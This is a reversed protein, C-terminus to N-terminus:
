NLIYLRKKKTEFYLYKVIIVSLASVIVAVYVDIFSDEITHTYEVLLQLIIQIIFFVITCISVCIMKTNFPFIESLLILPIPGIGINVATHFLFLIPLYLYYLNTKSVTLILFLVLCYAMGGFSIMLCLKRGFHDVLFLVFFTTTLQAGSIILTKATLDLNINYYASTIYNFFTFSNIGSLSRLIYLLVMLLMPKLWRYKLFISHKAERDVHDVNENIDDQVETLELHQNLPISGPDVFCPKRGNVQKGNKFCYYPTETIVTLSLIASLFGLFSSLYNTFSFEINEGIFNLIGSFLLFRGLAHAPWLVAILRGRSCDTAVEGIYVPLVSFIGGISLGTLFNAICGVVYESTIQFIISSIVLPLCIATITYRRGIIEALISYILSGIISGVKSSLVFIIVLSDNVKEAYLLRFVHLGYSSESLGVFLMLLCRIIIGLAVPNFSSSSISSLAYRPFVYVAYTFIYVGVMLLLPKIWSRKTSYIKGAEPEISKISKIGSQIENYELETNALFNRIYTLNQKALEEKGTNLYYYPTERVVTGTLLIGFMALIISSYNKFPMMDTEYFGSMVLRGIIILFIGLQHSPYLLAILRGRIDKTSIEGIFIPIVAYTGGISLGAIFSAGCGVVYNSTAQFMISSILLPLYIATITRQRGIIEALAGFFLSGILGGLKSSIIFKTILSVSIENIRLFRYVQFQYSIETMGAHVMLLCGTAVGAFMASNTM